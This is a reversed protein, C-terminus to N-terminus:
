KCFKEIEELMLRMGVTVSTLSEIQVWDFSEPIIAVLEEPFLHKVDDDYIDRKFSGFQTSLYDKMADLEEQSAVRFLIMEGDAITTMPNRFMVREATKNVAHLKGIFEHRICDVSNNFVQGDDAVFMEVRKM